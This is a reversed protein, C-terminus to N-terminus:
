TTEQQALTASNSSDALVAALLWGHLRDLWKYKAGITEDLLFATHPESKRLRIQLQAIQAECSEIERRIKDSATM